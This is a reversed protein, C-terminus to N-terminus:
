TAYDYIKVGFNMLISLALLSALVIPGMKDEYPGPDKRRIMGARKVFMWLSYFCFAIAVPMLMIGYLQSWENAEAFAVIAISISALTVSMHLWALFTRENAFFVKPEVKVPVKRPKVLPAGDIAQYPHDAKNFWSSFWSGASPTPLSVQQGTPETTM